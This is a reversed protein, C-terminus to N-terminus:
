AGAEVLAVVVRELHAARSAKVLIVADSAIARAADAAAQPDDVAIAEDPPMGELRAADVIARADAGVVILRSVGLRVCMRGLADHEPTEADGLEAMYGLVAVTPRDGALQRLSKLAARMSEPNANYADDIVTRDGVQVIRMRGPPSEVGALAAAARALSVGCARAAAIAALADPVIHEGPIALTVHAREAGHVVTFSACASAGLTVDEARVEADTAMGFLVVRSARDGMARVRHDDAFLVATGEPELAEVLEAKAIATADLSGFEGMHASGVNLVVAVHPRLAPALAAIHGIGRSGVETVVVETTEDAELMTLPVGLEANLLDASAVVRAGDAAIAAATLRKTCTKGSSGTIAVVRAGLRDRNAAALDALARLPDVVGITRADSSADDRVIAGAAGAALAERVFAHGDTQAGPLAVFLAGPGAQRSDIVVRAVMTDADDADLRGAVAAAVEKLTLPIM